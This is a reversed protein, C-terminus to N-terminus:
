QKIGLLNKANEIFEDADKVTTIAVGTTVFSSAVSAANELACRVVKAADWIGLKELDEIKGNEFNYGQWGNSEKVQAVIYERDEIGAVELVRLAPSSIAKQVIILGIKEHEDKCSEILKQLKPICRLLATGGGPTVGEEAASQVAKVADEVRAKEEHRAVETRSGVKLITIGDTLTALRTKLEVKMMSNEPEADLEAKISDIRDSIAKKREVSDEAVIVTRDHNIIVKKAKGLHELTAKELRIANSESLLTAGTVACIDRSMAMKKIGYAPAKVPCCYFKNQQLNQFIFGLAEGEVTDAILLLKRIGQKALAEMIPLLQFENKVAKDTVMVPVDDMICRYNQKDNICANMMYGCAFSLGDTHEMTIGPEDQRETDISGYEGSQIFAEAVIKAIRSDQSAVQAVKEYEEQTSIKKAMEKITEICSEVGKAIGRKVKITNLKQVGYKLWEKCMEYAIVVTTTTGDGSQMNCNRSAEVCIKIGMEEFQDSSGIDNAVTVGDKTNHVVMYKDIAVTQGYPGLTASVAKYMTEIGNFIRERSDQDYIITKAKSM